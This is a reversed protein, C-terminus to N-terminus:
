QSQLDQSVNAEKNQTQSFKRQYQRLSKRRMFDISFSGPTADFHVDITDGHKKWLLQGEKTSNLKVLSPTGDGTDALEKMRASDEKPVSRRGIIRTLEVPNKVDFGLKPWMAYGNMNRTDNRAANATITMGPMQRSYALVTVLFDSGM